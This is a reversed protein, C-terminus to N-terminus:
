GLIGLVRDWREIAAKAAGADGVGEPELEDIVDVVAQLAAPYNLDDDLARQFKEETVQIWEGVAGGGDKKGATEDKLYEYFGLVANAKGRADDLREDGFDLTERYDIGLLAVRLVSGRFGAELLEHITVVNRNALSMPQGDVLVEASHLWYNAFVEGSLAEAQAIECEHHPFVNDHAGTHIDFRPGLYKRGMAVCEVHWGPFGRGWPSKWHRQHELDTRWLEIDLGHRKGPHPKTRSAEIATTLETSSKGSLKGLLKSSTVDFYLNGDAKYTRGASELEQVTHVMDDIHERAHPYHHADLIHLARRDEHFIKEQREILESAYMGRRAAAIEVVDEEFENLHGVDTINMVQVVEFGDFEFKRRLLDALLYSRFKSLNLPEKITPGCHYMGVRGAGIPRFEEKKGNLTNFLQM